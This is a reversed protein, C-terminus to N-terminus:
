IGEVKISISQDATGHSFRLKDFTPPGSTLSLTYANSFGLQETPLGILNHDINGNDNADHFVVVAYDGPALPAFRLTAKGDSIDATVELQGRQRVNQGALFLKAIAHGSGNDFGSAEVRLICAKPVRAQSGMPLAAACMLAALAITHGQRRVPASARAPQLGTTSSKDDIM